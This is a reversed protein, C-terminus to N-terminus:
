IFYLLIVATNLLMNMSAHIYVNEKLNVVAVIALGVSSVLGSILCLKNKSGIGAGYSLIVDLGLLLAAIVLGVRFLYREPADIGCDSIMPLWAPVHDNIVALGYCILITTLTSLIGFHIPTPANTKALINEMTFLLM